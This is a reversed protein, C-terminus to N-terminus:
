RAGGSMDYQFDGRKISEMIAAENKEYEASSMKNVQSETFRARGGSAPASGGTRGVSRAADSSSTPRTRKIGKDAKYLDIARAASIPDNTNKYLADQIWNPQVEVWNHFSPDQRLSDFDPHIKKLAMEAKERTISTELKKLSEMKKEGMALAELSRKQAITDIISAVDPYKKMWDSVEKESKPFRIQQKTASELQTKMEQLERDKNSMQNQMHRRLDGYRKKFSAEDTDSSQAEPQQATQAMEESYPKEETDLEDRYGGRYKAM